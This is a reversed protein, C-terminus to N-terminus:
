FMKISYDEGPEDKSPNEEAQRERQNEIEREAEREDGNGSSPQRSEHSRILRRLKMEITGPDDDIAFRNPLETITEFVEPQTPTLASFHPDEYYRIRKAVIPNEGRWLSLRNFPRSGAYKM